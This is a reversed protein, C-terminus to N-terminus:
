AKKLLWAGGRFDGSFEAVWESGNWGGSDPEAVLSAELRWNGEPLPVHLSLAGTGAFSHAVVLAQRRDASLRRVAQWGSPHRFSEGWQGFRRSVGDVLMPAAAHYIGLAQKAMALQQEHLLNVPGSLCVRGLLAAALSYVTREPPDEPRLVAWIQLQRAPVLRLLNGAIIPIEPTEHADSFSSMATLELMSPELRHGGSSCNEVVLEPLEERLKQFFRRVGLLHERLGAGLSEAGDCGLGISDNYDVKLYGIGNDRLLRIVKETLYEHVWPDRFDWFRRNGVELPLGDRHLVHATHQHWAESGENLVEFEFWIGPVYGRERLARATEGLGGPFAQTNVRWDGNQQCAAGKREAWGDDIVVYRVGLGQLREAVDVMSQHSPSGWSYCWENFVAPLAKEEEPLDMPQAANLRDCADDLSGAAVTVYAPPSELEEGPELTQMWHGFERDALGGSLSVRDHRRYIEMQWSGLWALKAAWVVGAKSDELAAFPFWGRVPLSGVQGFRECAVGYGSWSRELQLQELTRTELRGEASWASRFRHVCLAGPADDAAFPTMGGLSFSTLAELTLPGKGANRVRTVIRLAVGDKMVEACHECELGRSEDRLLTMVAHGELRQSALHLREVTASGRMTRGAAFGNPYADGVVKIHVLCDVPNARMPGFAEPLVKVAKEDLFKRGPRVAQVKGEPVLELGVAHTQRDQRYILLQDGARFVSHVDPGLNAPVHLFREVPFM